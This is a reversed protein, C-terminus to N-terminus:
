SEFRVPCSYVDAFPSREKETCLPIADQDFCSLWAYGESKSKAGAELTRAARVRLVEYNLTSQQANLLEPFPPLDPESRM